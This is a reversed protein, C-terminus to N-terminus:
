EIWKELEGDQVPFDACCTHLGLPKGPFLSLRFILHMYFIYKEGYIFGLTGSVVGFNQYLIIIGTVLTLM